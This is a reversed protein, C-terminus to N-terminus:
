KRHTLTRSIPMCPRSRPRWSRPKTLTTHVWRMTPTQMPRRTRHPRHPKTFTRLPKKRIKKDFTLIYGISLNMWAVANDKNAYDFPVVGFSSFTKGSEIDAIAMKAFRITEDNWKTVPTAKATEDPGMSGLVLVVPRYKDADEALLEKGSKYVEDWNSAKLATNFRNAIENERAAKEAKALNTEEMKPLTTKLYESLEKAPECLGYKEFSQEAPLYRTRVARSIKRPTCNAFSIASNPRATPM